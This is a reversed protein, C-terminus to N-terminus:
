LSSIFEHLLAVAEAPKETPIWHSSKLIEIRRNPLYKEAGQVQSQPFCAYDYQALILLAPIDLTKDEDTLKSSIPDDIGQFASKYWNLPGTYGGQKFIRVHTAVEDESMWPPPPALKGKSIWDEAAGYACMNVKWDEPTTSYGLSTMSEPHADLLAAARDTLFFEMYGYAPYGVHQEFLKNLAKLDRLGPPSYGVSLFALGTFLAPHYIALESLLGSGWDHAVGVVQNLGEGQLIEQVHDAMRKFSYAAVDAPKDSDGYGLLDPALIGYKHETLLPIVHRWDFSTSPFGHLLLLTPKSPDAPPIHIYAYKTGDSVATIKSSQPFLQLAM